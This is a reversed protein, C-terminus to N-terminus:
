SADRKRSNYEVYSGNSLDVCADDYLTVWDGCPLEVDLKWESTSKGVLGLLEEVNM